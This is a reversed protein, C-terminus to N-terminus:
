WRKRVTISLFRGLADANLADYGINLGSTAPYNVHPPEEDTVNAISLLITLGGFLMRASDSSEYRFQLDATTWSDISQAPVFAPNDYSNSYNVNLSSGFSGRSWSIGGALRLKLPANLIDLVEVPSVTRAVQYENDLLYTGVLSLGLQGYKTERQYTSEAEIGSQKSAALNQRRSDFYAQVGAAGAGIADSVTGTNFAAQVLAPDAPRQIFPALQAQSYLTSFGGVRPPLDIRDEFETSFYTLALSLDPAVHPRWDLGVTYSSSTEPELEPNNSIDVLTNIFTGQASPNPINMTFYQNRPLLLVMEPARFSTGYTARLTLDPIASWLLGVKPNTSSGADDYHDYRGALSLELRHIGPRANDDGFIPILTEAYASAVERDLHMDPSPFTLAGVRILFTQDYKEQRGSAGVAMRIAGGPARFLSGDFRLDVSALETDTGSIITTGFPNNSLLSTSPQEILSYSGALEGVWGRGLAQEFAILGGYLKSQGETHTSQQFTPSYEDTFDTENYFGTASITTGSSFRQRGKLFVSDSSKYPILYMADAQAPVFDRRSADLSNQRSHEYMLMANGSNWAHGLLQSGIFNEADGSDAAGYRLGTEAGEFDQRLVINVVGAIADGGYVASAGDSLVEIREIANLPIRSIDVFSNNVGASTLRHGDILTLTAGIGLGHLNFASGKSASNANSGNGIAGTFGGLNLNTSAPQVSAFNQPMRKAFEALTGVGSREIEQRTYVTVPSSDPAAGRIHTGTVVIEDISVDKSPRATATDRAEAANSATVREARRLNDALTALRLRPPKAHDEGNLKSTTVATAPLKERIAVTRENLWAYTLPTGDLLRELAGQPTFTGALGPVLVVRTAEVSSIVQFGTQQAWETLADALTQPELDLKVERRVHESDGLSISPLALGVAILLALTTKM